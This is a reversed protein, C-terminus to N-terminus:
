FLVLKADVVCACHMCACHGCLMPSSCVEDGGLFLYEDDFITTAEKLFKSLFAYTAPETPNITDKCPGDLVMIKPEGQEWDGHGPM